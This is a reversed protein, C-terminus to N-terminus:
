QPIGSKNIARADQNFGSIGGEKVMWISYRGPESVFQQTAENFSARVYFVRNAGQHTETRPSGAAWNAPATALATNNNCTPNVACRDPDLDGMAYFTYPAKQETGPIYQDPTTVDKAYNTAWGDLFEVEPETPTIGGGWTINGANTRFGQTSRPFIGGHHASYSQLQARMRGFDSVRAADRQSRRANGTANLVTLMLLSALAIVIIFEILTFGSSRKVMIKKM